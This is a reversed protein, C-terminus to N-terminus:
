LRAAVIMEAELTSVSFTLPFPPAMDKAIFWSQELWRAQSYSFPFLALLIWNGLVKKRFFTHFKKEQAAETLVYINTSLPGLLYNFCPGNQM